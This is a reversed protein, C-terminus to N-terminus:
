EVVKAFIPSQVLEKVRPIVKTPAFLADGMRSYPESQERLIQRSPRRIDEIFIALAFHTFDLERGKENNALRVENKSNLNLSPSCYPSM